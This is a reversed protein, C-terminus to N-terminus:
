WRFNIFFIVEYALFVFDYCGHYSEKIRTGNWLIIFMQIYWSICM